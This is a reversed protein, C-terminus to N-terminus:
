LNFNYGVKLGMFGFSTTKLTSVSGYSTNTWAEYRLGVDIKNEGSGTRFCTGIGPSWVLSTKSTNGFRFAAGLQGEVYFEPTTYYKFGLKTPLANVNELRNGFYKKGIFTNISGSATIAYKPSIGIEAKLFGGFGIGSVNSANGTPFNVEPGLGLQVQQAAAIFPFLLVVFILTLFRFKM